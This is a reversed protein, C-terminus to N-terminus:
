GSCGHGFWLEARTGLAYALWLMRAAGQLFDLLSFRRHVAISIGVPLMCASIKLKLVMM